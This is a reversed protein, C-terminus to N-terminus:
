ENLPQNGLVTGPRDVVHFLRPMSEPLLLCVQATSNMKIEEERQLSVRQESGVVSVPEISELVTQLLLIFHYKHIRM